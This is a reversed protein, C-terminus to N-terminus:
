FIRRIRSPNQKSLFMIEWTPCGSILRSHWLLGFDQERDDTEGQFSWSDMM